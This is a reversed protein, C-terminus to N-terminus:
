DRRISHNKTGFLRKHNPMQGDGGGLPPCTVAGLPSLLAAEVDLVEGIQPREVM